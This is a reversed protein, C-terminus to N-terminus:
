SLEAIASLVDEEPIGGRWQGVLEGSSTALVGAPQANIGFHIWSDFGEDWLM